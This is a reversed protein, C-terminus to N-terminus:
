VFKSGKENVVITKAWKDGYRRGDKDILVMLADVLNYFPLMMSIVRIASTGYDNTIPKGTEIDVVRIHVARKGISQGNLGPIADKTLTYVLSLMMGAQLAKLGMLYGLLLPPAYAVTIDVIMAVLRAGASAKHFEPM